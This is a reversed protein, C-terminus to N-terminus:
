WLVVKGVTKCLQPEIVLAPIVNDKWCKLHWVDKVGDKSQKLVSALDWM